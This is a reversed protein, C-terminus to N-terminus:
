EEAITSNYHITVTSLIDNVTEGISIANWQEETGEYYIDTLGNSVIGNGFGIM